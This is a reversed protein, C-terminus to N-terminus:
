APLNSSKCCCCAHYQLPEKSFKSIQKNMRRDAPTVHQLQGHDLIREHGFLQKLSFYVVAHAFILACGAAAEFLTRGGLTLKFVCGERSFYM